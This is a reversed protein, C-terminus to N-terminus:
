HLGNIGHMQKQINELYKIVNKCSQEKFYNIDASNIQSVRAVGILLKGKAKKGKNALMPNLILYVKARLEQLAKNAIIGSPIETNKECMINADCFSCACFKIAEFEKVEPYLEAGTKIVIKSKCYRCRM